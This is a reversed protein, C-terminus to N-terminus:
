LQWGVTDFNPRPHCWSTVARWVLIARLAYGGAAHIDTASLGFRYVIWSAMGYHGNYYAIRLAYNNRSRADEVTLRFKDILWRVVALNGDACAAALANSSRADDVTLKFREALWIARDLQNSECAVRLACRQWPTQNASDAHSGDTPPGFQDVLWRAVDLRCHVCANALFNTARVCQVTIRLLSAFRQATDLSECEVAFQRLVVPGPVDAWFRSGAGQVLDRWERSVARLRFRERWPVCEFVILWVEAPLWSM